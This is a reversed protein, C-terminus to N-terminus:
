GDCGVVNRWDGVGREKWLVWCSQSHFVLLKQQLEGGGGWGRYRGPLRGGRRRRRRRQLLTTRSQRLSARCSVCAPTTVTLSQRRSAEDPEAAPQGPLVAPWAGGSAPTQDRRQCADNPEAAPLGQVPLAAPSAVTAVPQGQLVMAAAVLGPVTEKQRQETEQSRGARLRLRGTVQGKGVRCHRRRARVQGAPARVLPQEKVLRKGAEM